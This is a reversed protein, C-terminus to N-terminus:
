SSCKKLELTRPYSALSPNTTHSKSMHNAELYAFLSLTGSAVWSIQYSATTRNLPPCECLGDRTHLDVEYVKDNEGLILSCVRIYLNGAINWSTTVRSSAIWASKTEVIPRRIDPIEVLSDVFMTNVPEERATRWGGLEMQELVAGSSPANRIPSASPIPPTSTAVADNGISSTSTVFPDRRGHSSTNLSHQEKAERPSQINSSGERKHRMSLRKSRATGRYSVYVGYDRAHQFGKPTFMMRVSLSAKTGCIEIIDQCKHRKLVLSLYLKSCLFTIGVERIFYQWRKLPSPLSHLKCRVVKVLVEEGELEM